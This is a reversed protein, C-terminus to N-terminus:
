EVSFKFITVEYYRSDARLVTSPFPPHNPSDPFHQTELCFGAHKQNRLGSKGQESGDLFNGSYFQLGPQTTFVELVRGSERHHVRAAPKSEAARGRLVFNHDYGGALKLQEDDRQIREGIKIPSRFDLPTAVVSQIEGTPILGAGVPTFSDAEILLEHDLITGRGGLNFYSHNTLNVITDCDTTAQYDIRLENTETLAYRVIVRLNGPYGEEGNRSLYSLEVGVEENTDIPRADWIVKDFGKWGGHLHNKGDNQALSYTKGDLMFKGEAIRNAYRGVIAGFYSSGALYAELTDYGLVVDIVNGVRDPVCVNTIIGGYNIIRVRMGKSTELSFMEVTRGNPLNGYQNKTLQM